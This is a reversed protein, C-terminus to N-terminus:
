IEMALHMFRNWHFRIQLGYRTLLPVAVSNAVLGVISVVIEVVGELWFTFEALDEQEEECRSTINNIGLSTNEIMSVNELFVSFAPLVFLDM